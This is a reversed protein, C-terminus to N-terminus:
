WAAGIGRAAAAEAENVSLLGAARRCRATQRRAGIGISKSIGETGLGVPLLGGHAKKRVINLMSFTAFNWANDTTDGGDGFAPQVQTASLAFM